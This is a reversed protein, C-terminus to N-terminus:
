DEDMCWTQKGDPGWGYGSPCWGGRYTLAFEDKRLFERLRERMFSNAAKANAWSRRGKIYVRSMADCDPEKSDCFDVRVRHPGIKGEFTHFDSAMTHGGLATPLIARTEKRPVSYCGVFTNDIIISSSILSLIDIHILM